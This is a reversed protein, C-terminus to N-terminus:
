EAALLPESWAYLAEAVWRHGTENWHLDIEWAPYRQERRARERFAPGLDIVEIGERAYTEAVWSMMRLYGRHPEKRADGNVLVVVLRRGDREVIRHKMEYVLKEFLIQQDARIGRPGRLGEARVGRPLEGLAVARAAGQGEGRALRYSERVLRRAVRLGPFRPRREHKEYAGPTPSTEAMGELNSILNGAPDLSYIPPGEEGEVGVLNNWIDNPCFFAVVLDPSFGRGVSEYTALEHSQGWGSTGMAIVELPHGDRQALGELLRAMHREPAVQVGEVFSDGLLLVRFGGEPKALEHEADNFGLRNARLTVDYYPKAARHTVGPLLTHPRSGWRHHTLHQDREFHPLILEIGAVIALGTAGFMVCYFFLKKRM